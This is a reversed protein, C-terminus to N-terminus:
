RRAPTVDDTAYILFGNPMKREVKQVALRTGDFLTFWAGAHPPTPEPWEKQIVFLKYVKGLGALTVDEVTGGSDDVLVMVPFAKTRLTGDVRHTFSYAAPRLRDSLGVVYGAKAIDEKCSTVVHLTQGLKVAEGKRLTPFDAVFALVRVREAFDDGSIPDDGISPSGIRTVTASREGHRMTEACDPILSDRLRAKAAAVYESPKRM